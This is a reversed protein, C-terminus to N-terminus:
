TSPNPTVWEFDENNQDEQIVEEEEKSKSEQVVSQDPVILEVDDSDAEVKSESLVTSTTTTVEFETKTVTSVLQSAADFDPSTLCVKELFTESESSSNKDIALRSITLQLQEVKQELVSFKSPDSTSANTPENEELSKAQVSESQLALQEVNVNSTRCTLAEREVTTVTKVQLDKVEQIQKITMHLEEIKQELMTVQPQSHPVQRPQPEFSALFFPLRIRYGFMMVVIMLILLFVFLLVPLSSLWSLQSTLGYFFKGLHEGIKGMPQVVFVTVTEAVAMTPTVEWLPDVLLAEHYEACKKNSDFILSTWSKDSFCEHPITHSNILAIHKKLVAKKYMHGWHWVSSLALLLLFWKWLPLGIWLFYTLGLGGGLLICWFLDEGSPLYNKFKTSYGQFLNSFDFEETQEVVASVIFSNLIQDVDHLMGLREKVSKKKKNQDEVFRQLTRVQARTLEFKADFRLIEQDADGDDVELLKLLHKVHRYTFTDEIPVPAFGQCSCNTGSSNASFHFM